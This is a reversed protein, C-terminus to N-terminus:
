NYRRFDQSESSSNTYVPRPRDAWYDRRPENKYAHAAVDYLPGEKEQPSVASHSSYISNNAELKPAAHTDGKCHGEHSSRRDDHENDNSQHSSSDGNCRSSIATNPTYESLERSSSTPFIASCYSSVASGSNGPAPFRYLPRKLLHPSTINGLSPRTSAM